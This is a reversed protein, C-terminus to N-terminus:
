QNTQFHQIKRGLLLLSEYRAAVSRVCHKAGQHYTCVSGSYMSCGTDPQFRGSDAIAQELTCPCPILEDVFDPLSTEDQNWEDCRNTSWSQPNDQYEQNLIYGFAHTNSWM